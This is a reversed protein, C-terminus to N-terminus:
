SKEEELKKKLNDLFCNVLIEAELQILPGSPKEHIGSSQEGSRRSSDTSYPM